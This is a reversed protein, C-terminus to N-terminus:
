QGTGGNSGLEESRELSEGPTLGETPPPIDPPLNQLEHVVLLTQLNSMPGLPNGPDIELNYRRGLRGDAVIMPAPDPCGVPTENLCFNNFSLANGSCSGFPGFQSFPAMIWSTFSGTTAFTGPSNIHASAVFTEKTSWWGNSNTGPPYDHNIGLRNHYLAPNDTQPDTQTHISRYWPNNAYADIPGTQLAHRWFYVSWNPHPDLPLHPTFDCLLGRPIPGRRAITPTGISQLNRLSDLYMSATTMNTIIQGAAAGGGHVHVADSPNQVHDFWPFQNAAPYTGVISNHMPRNITIGPKGVFFVRRHDQGVLAAGPIIPGAFMRTHTVYGAVILDDCEDAGIDIDGFPDSIENPRKSKIRPNGFGECDFDWACTPAEEAKPVPPTVSVDAYYSQWGPGFGEVRLVMGLSRTVELFQTRSPGGDVGTDICPNSVLASSGPTWGTTSVMPLLRLDHSSALGAGPSFRLADDVFFLRPIATLSALDARPALEGNPISSPTIVDIARWNLGVNVTGLNFTTPRQTTPDTRGDPFANFDRGQTQFTPDTVVQGLAWQVARSKVEIGEFCSIPTPLVGPQRDALDIINNFIAPSNWDRPLGPQNIIGTDGSWIGVVNSAFTNNAIIANHTVSVGGPPTKNDLAIGISNDYIFCNTISVRTQQQIGAFYFAAGAGAAVGPTAAARSGRVAIGDILSNDVPLLNPLTAGIEFIPVQLGRADFITDLTSTGQIGIRSRDFRIPLTEGNFPLGSRPDITPLGGGTPGYVGPLCHILVFSVTKGSGPPNMPLQPFVTRIYDLAGLVPPTSAPSPTTLTRFAYPAHQLVGEISKLGTVPDPPAPHVALPHPNLPPPTTATARMWDSM